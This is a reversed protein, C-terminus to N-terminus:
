QMNELQRKKINHDIQFMVLQLFETVLGPTAIGVIQKITYLNQEAGLWMQDLAAQNTVVMKEFEDKSM